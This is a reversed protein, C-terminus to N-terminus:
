RVVGPVDLVQGVALSNGFVDFNKLSWVVKKDRTVEILQPNEPGAHCNGIIVNGNPLAQVTTVWALTIGPLEKQDVSWVLKGAPDVELVRNNNGGGILTNGNALRVASYVSTGHGEVGHGGSAKRDGLDLTYSWVIKGDKDYERVKGDAECAVLYNGSELKRVQRTDSHSSVRDRTLPVQHVIKGDADVEIIRGNGSEAIMTRGNALRQFAHVEIKGTYGEKPKSTYEWVVKKDPTMEVITTNSTPMLLNGNALLQLDHATVKCPTQWEITKGDAALITIKGKDCGLVRYGPHPIEEANTGSFLGLTCFVFCGVLVRSM